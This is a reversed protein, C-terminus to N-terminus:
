VSPRVPRVSPSSLCRAPIQVCVGKGGGRNAGKKAGGFFLRGEAGGGHEGVGKKKEEKQSVGQCVM